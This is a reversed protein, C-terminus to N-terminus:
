WRQVKVHHKQNPEEYNKAEQEPELLTAHRPFLGYTDAIVIRTAEQNPPSSSINM